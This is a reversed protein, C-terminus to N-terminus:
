HATAVDSKEENGPLPASVSFKKDWDGRRREAYKAFADLPSKVVSASGEIEKMTEPDMAALQMCLGSPGSRTGKWMDILHDLTWVGSQLMATAMRGIIELQARANSTLQTELECADVNMFEKGCSVCKEEHSRVVAADQGYTIDLYVPHGKAYGVKYYLDRGSITLKITECEVGSVFQQEVEAWEKNM